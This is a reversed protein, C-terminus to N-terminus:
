TSVPVPLTAAAMTTVAGAMIVAEFVAVGSVRAPGVVSVAAVASVAALGVVSVAVEAAEMTVVVPSGAVVPQDAPIAAVVVM